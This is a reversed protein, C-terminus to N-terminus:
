RKRGFERKYKEILQTVEDLLNLIDVIKLYCVELVPNLVM